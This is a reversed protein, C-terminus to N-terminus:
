GRDSRMKPQAVLRAWVAGVTVAFSLGAFLYPPVALYERILPLVLELGSLFAALLILRITWAKRLVTRWDPILNV